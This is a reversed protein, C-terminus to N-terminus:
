YSHLGPLLFTVGLYTFLMALFSAITFFIRVRNKTHLANVLLIWTVLAWIEKPDWSWFKSWSIEAWFSGTILGVSILFYSIKLERNLKTDLESRGFLHFISIVFAFSLSVYGMFYAPVHIFMWFSRLVPVLLNPTKLEYPFILATLTLLFSLSLYFLNKKKSHDSIFFVLKLNYLFGFFMVSEYAGAFPAHGTILTRYVAWFFQISIILFLAPLASRKTLLVTLGYTIYLLIIIILLITEFLIM